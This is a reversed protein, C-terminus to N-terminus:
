FNDSKHNDTSLLKLVANGVDADNTIDVAKKACEKITNDREAKLQEKTFLETGNKIKYPQAFISEVFTVYKNIYTERVKAVPKQEIMM